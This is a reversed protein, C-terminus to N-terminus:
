CPKDKKMRASLKIHFAQQRYRSEQFAPVLMLVRHGREHLAQTLTLFPLLDGSTGYTAVIILPSPTQATVTSATDFMSPMNDDTMTGDMTTLDENDANKRVSPLLYVCLCKLVM